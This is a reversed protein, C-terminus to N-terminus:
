AKTTVDSPIVTPSAAPKTTNRSGLYVGGVIMLLALLHVLQLREGLFLAAFLLSAMPMGNLFVATRSAGLQRIGYNWGVSGIATSLIASALIVLWQFPTVELGIYYSAPQVSLAAIWLFLIGFWQSMVTILLVPIGRLALKRILLGGTVYMLMSFFMIADGWGNMHIGGHQSIVVILVGAFGVAIGLGKRWSMGEGLLLMALLATALPNLGLILSANGASTYQVGTALTIQHMAISSAGVGALLFWNTMGIRLQKRYQYIIPALIVGAITMRIAAVYMPPFTTLYKVMVVNLGWLMVVGALMFFLLREKSRM